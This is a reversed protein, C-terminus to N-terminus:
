FRNEISSSNLVVIFVGDKLSALCCGASPTHGTKMGEWGADILRNTNKWTRTGKAQVGEEDYVECV